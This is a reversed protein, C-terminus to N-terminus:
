FVFSLSASASNFSYTLEGSLDLRDFREIRYSRHSRGVGFGVHEWPFFEVRVSDEIIRGEWGAFSPAFRHLDAQPRAWDTMWWDLDLVIKPAPVNEGVQSHGDGTVIPEDGLPGIAGEAALTLSMDINTFGASMGLDRGPRKLFDYQYGVLLFPTVFESRASIGVEFVEEGLRFEEELSATKVQKFRVYGLTLRHKRGLRVYGEATFETRDELLGLNSLSVSENIDGGGRLGGRENLKRDSRGGKRRAGAM